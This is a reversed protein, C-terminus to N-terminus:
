NINILLFVVHIYRLKGRVWKQLDGAPLITIRFSHINGEYNWYRGITKHLKNYWFVDFLVLSIEYLTPSSEMFIIATKWGCSKKDISLFIVWIWTCDLQVCVAWKQHTYSTFLFAM